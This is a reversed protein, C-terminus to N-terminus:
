KKSTNTIEERMNKALLNMTELAEKAFNSDAQKLLYTEPWKIEAKLIELMEKRMELNDNADSKLMLFCMNYKDFISKVKILYTSTDVFQRYQKLYWAALFEIFIFLLSCSIIGYIHQTHFGFFHIFIQWSILAAVFFVIGTTATSVGRDLLNSAKTDALHIQSIFTNNIYLAYQEYSDFASKETTNKIPIDTIIKNPQFSNKTIKAEHYSIGPQISTSASNQFREDIETFKLQRSASLMTSIIFGFGIVMLIVSILKRININSFEKEFDPIGIFVGAVLFGYAIWFKKDRFLSNFIAIISAPSKSPM